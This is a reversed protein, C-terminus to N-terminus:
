GSVGLLMVPDSLYEYRESGVYGKVRIRYLGEGALEGSNLLGDWTFSSGWPDLQEPRTAQRSSLRRITKGQMDEITVTLECPFTHLVNFTLEENDEPAFFAPTSIALEPNGQDPPVCLVRSSAVAPMGHDITLLQLLM